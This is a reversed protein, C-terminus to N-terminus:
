LCNMNIEKIKAPLSKKEQLSLSPLLEGRIENFYFIHNNLDNGIDEFQAKGEEIRAHLNILEIIIKEKTNPRFDFEVFALIVLLLLIWKRVSKM